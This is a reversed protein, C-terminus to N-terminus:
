WFWDCKLWSVLKTTRSEGVLPASERVDRCHMRPCTFVKLYDLVHLRVDSKMKTTQSFDSLDSDLTKVNVSGLVPDICNVFNTCNCLFVCTVLTCFQPLCSPTQSAWLETQVQPFTLGGAQCIFEMAHHIGHFVTGDLPTGAGLIPFIVTEPYFACSHCPTTKSSHDTTHLWQTHSQTDHKAKYLTLLQTQIETFIAPDSSWQVSKYLLDIDITFQQVTNTNGEINCIHLTIYIWLDKKGPEMIQIGHFGTGNWPIGNWEM